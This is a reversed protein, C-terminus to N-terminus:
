AFVVSKSAGNVYGFPNSTGTWSWTGNAGGGSFSADTRNFVNGDITVTSWISDSITSTSTLRLTLLGGTLWYCKDVTDASPGFISLTGDSISGYVSAQYGWEFPTSPDDRGVTVTETDGAYASSGGEVIVTGTSLVSGGNKRIDITLNATDYQDVTWARDSTLALWTGTTGTALTGSNLTARIEYGGGTAKSEPTLWSGTDVYATTAGTRAFFEGDTEYKVGGDVAGSPTYTGANVDATAAGGLFAKALQFSM